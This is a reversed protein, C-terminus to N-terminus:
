NINQGGDIIIESGTTFSSKDSLLFIVMNAIEAPTGFRELPVEKKIMKKIREKNKKIKKHWNGNKFYINGPLVNNVRINFKALNKALFKSYYNINQKSLTYGIPAGVNKISAISSIFVISSKNKKLYDLFYNIFKFSNMFNNENYWNFDTLNDFSLNKSKVSGANAVIGDLRKWKLLIKKIKKLTSENKVDGAVYRVNEDFDKSLKKYSMLLNLKNRGTIVVKGGEQLIQNAIEFGIGKSSGSVIFIKDKLNLNM